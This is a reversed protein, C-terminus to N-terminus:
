RILQSLQRTPQREEVAIKDGEKVNQIGEYLIKDSTTVGSEVVLLHPLRLKPIISKAKVINNEDICYVFTKDQVEFTSKQPIVLANKLPHTIQIKGSAGHKLLQKPNAFRARLAINGTTKDFQADIMEIRGKHHHYNGDALILAINERSFHSQDQSLSLYVPESVNFYAFVSQNDSLTTLLTGEDILSGTKVPLRGILGDFPARIETFTIQTRMAKEHAIAEQAKAKLVELQTNKLELETTSVVKKDALLATNKVELEATKCEALATQVLAQAKNLEEKFLANNLTFLLQGKKVSAGEDVHIRSLYGQIQARIEINQVSQIDAVYESTYVTDVVEPRIFSYNATTTDATENKTSQCATIAFIAIAFYYPYNKMKTCQLVRFCLNQRGCHGKLGTHLRSV